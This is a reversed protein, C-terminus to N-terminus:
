SHIPGLGNAANPPRGPGADGGPSGRGGRVLSLVAGFLALGILVWAADRAAHVFASKSALERGLTPALRAAYVPERAAFMVAAFAVGMVQGANRSTALIGSAIGLRAPAVTGMVASTNPSQFLGLGAGVLALRLAIGLYSTQLSLGTLLFVAVATVVLGLTSLFRSGIRDSLAGSAPGFLMIGAPVPTMLLGATQVNIGLSNEMYFPMIFIVAAYVVFSLLASGIGASFLREGFLRLDLVPQRIRSEAVVFGVVGAVCLAFLIIIPASGWGWHPGQSLALLLPFLAVFSLIAGLPDFSQRRIPSSQLIRWSLALVVIGIPVNILFIWRWSTFGTIAGGVSPGVALGAAVAVGVLGLAKGREHRPFAATIIAPGTAFMMSAGLAQFVRFGVLAWISWSLACALSGATFLAFGIMYVRKLGVIDALRGFTLLTTSVTLLYGVVVWEVTTIPVNFTARLTPLAINVVSGDLPSMFTGVMVTALVWWKRSYDVAEDGVPASRDGPPGTV